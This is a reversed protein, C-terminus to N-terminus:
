ELDASHHCHPLGPVLRLGTNGLSGKKDDLQFIPCLFIVTLTLSMTTRNVESHMRPKIIILFVPLLAHRLSDIQQPIHVHLYPSTGVIECM